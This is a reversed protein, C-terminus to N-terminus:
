KMKNNRTCVESPLELTRKLNQHSAWPIFLGLLKIPIFKTNLLTKTYKHIKNNNHPNIFPVTFECKIIQLILILSNLLRLYNSSFRNNKSNKTLVQTTCNNNPHTTPCKKKALNLPIMKTKIMKNRM